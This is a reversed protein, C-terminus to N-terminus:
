TLTLFDGPHMQRESEIDATDTKRRNEEVCLGYKEITHVAQTM